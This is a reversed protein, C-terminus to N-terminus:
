IVRALETSAAAVRRHARADIGLEYHGRRINRMFAHGGMVVRASQDHKLRWGRKMAYLGKPSAERRDDSM